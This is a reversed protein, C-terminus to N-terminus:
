ESGLGAAPKAAKLEKTRALVLRLARLARHQIVRVTGARKSIALGVEDYSLQELFRKSLVDRQLDPLEILAQRLQDAQARREVSEEPSETTDAELSIEDLSVNPRRKSLQKLAVRQAITLLWALIPVDRDEFRDIANWARLFAESAIDEAEQRSSVLYSVRRLVLTYYRLYLTAFADSDRNTARRILIREEPSLAM